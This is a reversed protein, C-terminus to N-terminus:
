SKPPEPASSLYKKSDLMLGAQLGLGGTAGIGIATNPDIGEVTGTLGATVASIVSSLILQVPRPIYKGVITNVFSTIAMTAVPGIAVWLAPLIMHLFINGISSIDM